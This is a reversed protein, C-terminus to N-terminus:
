TRDIPRDRRCVLDQFCTRNCAWRDREIIAMDAMKGIGERGQHFAVLLGLEIDVCSNNSARAEHSPAMQTLHRRGAHADLRMTMM